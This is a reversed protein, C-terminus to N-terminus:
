KKHKKGYMKMGESERKEKDDQFIKKKDDKIQIREEAMDKDFDAKKPGKKHGYKGPAAEIKKKLEEPLNKQKGVLEKEPGMHKGYKSMGDARSAHVAKRQADSKYKSMGVPEGAMYKMMGKGVVKNNMSGYAGPGPMGGPYSELDKAKQSMKASGYDKGSHTKSKDGKNGGLVVKDYKAGGLHNPGISPHKTIGKTGM